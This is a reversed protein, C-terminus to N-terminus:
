FNIWKHVFYAICVVGAHPYFHFLLQAIKLLIHKWAIYLYNDFLNRPLLRLKFSM